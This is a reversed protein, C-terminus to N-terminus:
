KWLSYLLLRLLVVGFPLQVIMGNPLNIIYENLLMHIYNVHMDM